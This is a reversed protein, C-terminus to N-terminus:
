SKTGNKGHFWYYSSTAHFQYIAGFARPMQIDAILWSKSILETTVKPLWSESVMRFQDTFSFVKPMEIAVPLWSKVFTGYHEKALFAAKQM